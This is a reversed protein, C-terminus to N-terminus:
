CLMFLLKKDYVGAVLYILRFEVFKAVCCMESMSHSCLFAFVCAFYMFLSCSCQHCTYVM